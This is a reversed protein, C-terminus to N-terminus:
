PHAGAKLANFVLSYIFTIAAWGVATLVTGLILIFIWGEFVNMQFPGTGGHRIEIDTRGLAHISQEIDRTSGATTIYLRQKGDTEGSPIFVTLSLLLGAILCTLARSLSFFSSTM